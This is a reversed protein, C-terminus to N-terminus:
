CGVATVGSSAAECDAAGAEATFSALGDGVPMM